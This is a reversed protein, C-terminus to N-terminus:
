LINVHEPLQSLDIKDYFIEVEKPTFTGLDGIRLLTDNLTKLKFSPPTEISALEMRSLLEKRGTGYWIERVSCRNIDGMDFGPSGNHESTIYFRGDYNFSASWPTAINPVNEIAKSLHQFGVSNVLIRMHKGVIDVVQEQLRVPMMAFLAANPQLRVPKMNEDFYNVEPRFSAHDIGDNAQEQIRLLLKAIQNCESSNAANLIFGIGVNTEPSLKKKLRGLKAINHTIMDFRSSGGASYGFQKRHVEASGANLSVRVFLPQAELIKRIRDESLLLGNTYLGFDYGEKSCASMFDELSRNMMPEGGGTFIIGKTRLEKLGRLIKDYVAMSMLREKTFRRSKSRNQKYTCNRCDMNCELSPVIEVTVPEVALNNGLLFASFNEKHYVAKGAADYFRLNEDGGRALIEHLRLVRSPQRVANEVDANIHM